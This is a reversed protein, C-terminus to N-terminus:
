LKGRNLRELASRGALPEGLLEHRIERPAGFARDREALVAPPVQVNVPAPLRARRKTQAAELYERRAREQYSVM